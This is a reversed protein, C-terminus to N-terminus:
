FKPDALTVNVVLADGATMGANGIFSIYFGDYSPVLGTSVGSCDAGDTDNYVQANAAVPNYTTIIMGSSSRKQVCRVTFRGCAVAGSGIAPLFIGGNMVAQAPATSYLFGPKEYYRQCRRLTDDFPLFEFDTAASAPELQVGELTISDDAGATGTPTWTFRVGLENISTSAPVALGFRQLSTSLTSIATTALTAAGAYGDLVNEDTGTGLVVDVTLNGGSYNAGKKAYFSLYMPTGTGRKLRVCNATELSQALMMNATSSNGSDRQWKLAYRGFSGTQQSVTYGTASSARVAWWCDATRTRTVAGAISASGGAGAQWVDFAGNILLNRRFANGTTVGTVQGYTAADSAATGDALNTIKKANWNLDASPKGQGDRTLALNFGQQANTFMTNMASASIITGDVFVTPFSFNGSGDYM